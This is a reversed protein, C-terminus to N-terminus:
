ITVLRQYIGNDLKMLEDHTGREVLKGQDIVLLEDAHRLTSLRHAIAITTKGQILHYLAQQIKAETETDVSSTAEDLILIKPDTLLARAFSVLQRQGMSLGKGREGVQTKIGEPLYEIFEEAHVAKIARMVDEQTADQRGYK